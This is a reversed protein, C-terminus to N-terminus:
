ITSLKQGRKNFCKWVLEQWVQTVEKDYIVYIEARRCLFSKYIGMFDDLPSLDPSRQLRLM